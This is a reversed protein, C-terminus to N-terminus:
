NAIILGPFNVRGMKNKVGLAKSEFFKHAVSPFISICAVNQQPFRFVDTALCPPIHPSLILISRLLTVPNM